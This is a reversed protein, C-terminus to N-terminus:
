GAARQQDFLQDLERDDRILEAIDDEGTDEFLPARGPTTLDLVRVGWAPEPAVTFTDEEAFAPAPRQEPRQQTPVPRRQPRLGETAMPVTTDVRVAVRPEASPEPLVPPPPAPVRRAPETSGAYSPAARTYPPGAIRAPPVTAQPQRVARAREARRAATRRRQAEQASHHLWVVTATLLLGTLATLGVMPRGGRGSAALLLAFFFVGTMVGLTRRRRALVAPNPGPEPRYRRPPPPSPAGASLTPRTAARPMAVWRRDTQRRSLVRMAGAFRDVSRLETAAEHRHRVLPVLVFAWAGAIVLLVIASSM